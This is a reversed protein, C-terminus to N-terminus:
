PISSKSAAPNIQASSIVGLKLAGPNKSPLIQLWSYMYQHAFTAAQIVLAM